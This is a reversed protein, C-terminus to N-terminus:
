NIHMRVRVSMSSLSIGGTSIRGSSAAGVGLGGLAISGCLGPDHPLGQDHAVSASNGQIIPVESGRLMPPDPNRQVAVIVLRPVTLILAVPQSRLTAHLKVNSPEGIWNPVHVRWCDLTNWSM